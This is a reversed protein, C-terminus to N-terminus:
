NRRLLTATGDRYIQQWGWHRLGDVLSYNNPLLAHTFGFQSVQERWGPRAEILRIYDQMFGVGYFDSRGDFFVRRRGAFRYILYGGYKDPALIRADVPLQEVAASAQVPFERPSFGTQAAIAPAQLLVFALTVAAAGAAYGGCQVELARFRESYALATDLRRRLKATVDWRRLAATIAGNGLPLVLLGLLPLGRASRLSMVLVGCCLLFHDARRNGLTLPIALMALAVTLIVQGAGAAHFNFSQFEGIRALLEGNSLYAFVHIHLQHGYPNVFTGAVAILLFHLFPLPRRHPGDWLLGSLWAGCAYAAAMLPLLIFSGHTNAWLASGGFVTVALPLTVTRMRELLCLAAVALLWGFVHPRALWHLSLTTLMPAAMACAIFFNGGCAWHLQFWVWVAASGAVAYLLAVGKLGNWGHVAGMAVDACWEWAFWVQGSKTFSYPDSPPLQKGALIAEGNRVHWGTDSDRFLKEPGDGLFLSIFLAVVSVLMAADPLCLSVFVRGVVSSGTSTNTM